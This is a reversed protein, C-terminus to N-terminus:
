SETKAQAARAADRYYNVLLDVCAGYSRLGLDQDYSYLFGEYVTSSITQVPTEFQQWYTRNAAFDARVEPCLGEYIARWGELDVTYLANGLHTYALLCASYVYDADGNELSALVAVFNAEQEKAVGRQHALEHAVTSAFFGQPFDTNVNAEATFPFFFGTFDTYSLLHSLFVGKVPIEPGRLCSFRAEAQRYLMPSRELIAARDSRCVGDEGRPVRDAYANALDAFYATVARLDEVSVQGTELGSQAAFDDGYYYVGWLVCFGAYVLSVFCLLTIFIIYVQKKRDKGLVLRYVDFIIYVILAVGALVILLEAVSFPVRATLLSLRRHVPRVFRESLQVNLAHDGRTLLHLLIVAAALLTLGHRVPCLDFIAAIGRKKERTTEM